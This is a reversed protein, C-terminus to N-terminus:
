EMRRQSYRLQVMLINAFGFIKRKAIKWTTGELLSIYMKDVNTAEDVQMAFYSSRLQDTMQDCLDESIGSIRRGV